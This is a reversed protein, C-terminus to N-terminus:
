SQISQNYFSMYRSINVTKDLDVKGELFDVFHEAFFPALTVGKTGLGNFIAVSPFAPHLGIFPKRDRVTPRIAAKIELVEYAPTILNTIKSKLEEVGKEIPTNDDGPNAWTFTAGVRFMDNKQPIMFVGKNLIHSDPMNKISTMFVEGKALTFPLWNFLGEASATSGQCFVVKRAKIDKYVVSDANLQLEKSDFRAEVYQDNKKLFARYNDILLPVDLWGSRTVEFGGFYQNLVSEYVNSSSTKIYSDMGPEASKSIWENQAEISDFPCYMNQHHVFKIHLEKELDAYFKEMFPFLEDCRWTKTRRKGTIPNFLGGAVKSASVEPNNDIVLVSYGHKLLTYSMVTGAIGQGVVIYDIEKM